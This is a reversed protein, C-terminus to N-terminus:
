EPLVQPSQSSQTEAVEQRLQETTVLGWFECKEDENMIGVTMTFNQRKKNDELATRVSELNPYDEISIDTVLVTSIVHRLGHADKVRPYDDDMSEWHAIKKVEPNIKNNWTNIENKPLSWYAVADLCIGGDVVEMCALGESSPVAVIGLAILNELKSAEELYIDLDRTFPEYYEREIGAQQFRQTIDRTLGFRPNFVEEDKQPLGSDAGEPTNGLQEKGPM